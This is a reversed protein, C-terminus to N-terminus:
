APGVEDCDQTTFKTILAYILYAAVDNKLAFVRMMPDSYWIVIWQSDPCKIRNKACHSCGLVDVLFLNQTKQSERVTKNESISERFVSLTRRAELYFLDSKLFYFM